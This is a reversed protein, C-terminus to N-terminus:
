LQVLGLRIDGGWGVDEGVGVDEKSATDEELGVDEWFEMGCGRGVGIDEM